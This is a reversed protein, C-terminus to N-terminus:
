YFIKNAALVVEVKLQRPVPDVRHSKVGEEELAAVASAHHRTVVVLHGHVLFDAVEEVSVFLGGQPGGVVAGDLADLPPTLKNTLLIGHNM